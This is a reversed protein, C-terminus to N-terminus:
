NDVFANHFSIWIPSLLYDLLTHEGEKITVDAPMGPYLRYKAAETEDLIVRGKYFSRRTLPDPVLDASIDELIGPISPTTRQKYASLRVECPMGPRVIDIDLPEINIDVVLREGDPVVHMLPVGPRITSGVTFVQMDSVTGDMPSTIDTRFLIERTSELNSELEVIRSRVTQLERANKEAFQTTLLGREIEASQMAEEAQAIAALAVGREGEIEAIARKGAALRSATMLEEDFLEQMNALEGKAIELQRDASRVQQRFGDVQRHYQEIKRKLIETQERISNVASFFLGEQTMLIQEVGSESRRAEIEQPFALAERGAIHAQLRAASARAAILEQELADAQLESRIPELRLLVDGKKVKSGNHVTIEKIIGGEQHNIEQNRSEVVLIGHAISGGTLPALAAWSGFGAFFVLCIAIGALVLRHIPPIAPASQYAVPQYGRAQQRSYIASAQVPAQAPSPTQGTSKGTAPVQQGTEQNPTTDAM